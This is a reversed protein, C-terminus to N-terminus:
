QFCADGFQSVGFVGPDCGGDDTTTTDMDGDTTSDASDTTTSDLGDTPDVMSMTTTGDPPDATTGSDSGSDMDAPLMTDAMDVGTTTVGGSSESEVPVSAPEFCGSTLSAFPLLLVAARMRM